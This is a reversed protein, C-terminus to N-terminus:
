YTLLSGRLAMTQCLSNSGLDEPATASGSDFSDSSSETNLIAVKGTRYDSIGLAVRDGETGNDGSLALLDWPNIIIRAQNYSVACGFNSSM